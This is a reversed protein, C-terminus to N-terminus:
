PLPQCIVNIRLLIAESGSNNDVWCKWAETNTGTKGFVPGDYSVVTGNAAPDTDYWCSGALLRHNQPCLKVLNGSSGTVLLTENAHGTLGSDITTTSEAAETSVPDHVCATVMFIVFISTPMYFFSAQIKNM